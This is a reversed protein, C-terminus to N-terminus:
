REFLTCAYAHPRAAALDGAQAAAVFAGCAGLRDGLRFARLALRLVDGAFAPKRFGMELARTLVATPLGRAAFRRLAAEEFLRPYVLSNVHQNSDTHTLGFAIPASDLELVDDVPTAGPPLELLAPLPSSEYREAPVPPEGPIDLRQVRRQEPPAFPRTLVHEGFLRGAM